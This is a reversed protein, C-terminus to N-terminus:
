HGYLEGKKMFNLEGLEEDWDARYGFHNLMVMLDNRLTDDYKIWDEMTSMCHIVTSHHRNFIKGIAEYTLNNSVVRKRLTWFICYRLMKLSSIRSAGEAASREIEYYRCWYDIVDEISKATESSRRDIKTLKHLIIAEELETLILDYKNIIGNYIDMNIMRSTKIINSKRLSNQM